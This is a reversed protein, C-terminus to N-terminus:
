VFNVAETEIEELKELLAEFDDESINLETMYLSLEDEDIDDEEKMQCVQSCFMLALAQMRDEQPVEYDTLLDDGASQLAIVRLNNEPIKWNKLLKKGVELHHMEYVMELLEENIAQSSDVNAVIEHLVSLIMLKGINHMLGNMFMAEKDIKVKKAVDKCLFACCLSQKWIKKIPELFVKGKILASKISFLHIISRIQKRGLRVIANKVSTVEIVAGYLCSNATKLIQGAIIPDLNIIKEMDEPTSMPNGLLEMVRIASQPITPLSYNGAEIRRKLEGILDLDSPM